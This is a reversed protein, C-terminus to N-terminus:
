IEEASYKIIRSLTSANLKITYIYNLVTLPLFYQILLVSEYFGVPLDCFLYLKRAQRLISQNPLLKMAGCCASPNMLDLSVVLFPFMVHCFRVLNRLLRARTWKLPTHRLLPRLPASARGHPAASRPAHRTGRRTGAAADHVGGGCVCGWACFYPITFTVCWDPQVSIVPMSSAAQEPAQCRAETFYSLKQM